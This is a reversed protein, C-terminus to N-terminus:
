ADSDSRSASRLRPYSIAIAVNNGGDAAFRELSQREFRGVDAARGLKSSGAAVNAGVALGKSPAYINQITVVLSPASTPRLEIGAGIQPRLRAPRPYRRRHRRGAFLRGDRCSRRCRANPANQKRLQYWALGTRSSGAIKRWLRVVLGEDGPPGVPRSSSRAGASGRFGVATVGGPAVPSQVRLDGVTALVQAEPQRLPSPCRLPVPASPRARCRTQEDFATLSFTAVAIVGIVMALSAFRRARAPPRRRNEARLRAAHRSRPTTTAM